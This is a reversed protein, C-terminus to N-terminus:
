YRIYLVNASNEDSALPGTPVPRPSPIPRHYFHDHMGLRSCNIRLQRIFASPLQFTSHRSPAPATPPTLGIARESGVTTENAEGCPTSGGFFRFRLRSAGKIEDCATTELTKKRQLRNSHGPALAADIRAGRESVYNSFFLPFVVLANQVQREQM